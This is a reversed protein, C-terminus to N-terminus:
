IQSKENNLGPCFTNIILNPYISSFFRPMVFGAHPLTPPPVPEDTLWSAGCRLESVDDDDDDENEDDDADNDDNDDNGDDDHDDVDDDDDVNNYNANNNDDEDDDDDM